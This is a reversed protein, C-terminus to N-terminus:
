TSRLIGAFLLAWGIIFAVGGLPTLLGVYRVSTMSLIYLSGSFLLTGTFLFWGASSVLSGGFQRWILGVVLLAIGHILQYLVGTQYVSLMESSLLKRLGHAGFAGLAVGSGSLACGMLMFIKDTTM